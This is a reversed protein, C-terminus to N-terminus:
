KVHIVRRQYYRLKRGCHMLQLCALTDYRHIVDAIKKLGPIYKDHDICLQYQITIGVPDDICTAEVIILGVGGEARSAYHAIMRDTVYHDETAFCTVMAPMM